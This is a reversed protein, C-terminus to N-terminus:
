SEASVLHHDKTDWTKGIAACMKQWCSRCLDFEGEAFPTVLRFCRGRTEDGESLKVGCGDCKWITVKM